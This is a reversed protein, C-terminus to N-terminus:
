YAEVDVEYGDVQMKPEYNPLPAIRFDKLDKGDGRGTVGGVDFSVIGNHDRPM